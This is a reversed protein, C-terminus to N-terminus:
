QSVGTASCKARVVWPTTGSLTYNASTALGYQGQGGSIVESLDVDGDIDTNADGDIPQWGTLICPIIRETM